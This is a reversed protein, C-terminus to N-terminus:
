LCEVPLPENSWGPCPECPNCPRTMPTNKSFVDFHWCLFLAASFLVIAVGYRWCKSRRVNESIYQSMTPVFGWKWAILDIAMFAAFMIWFVSFMMM